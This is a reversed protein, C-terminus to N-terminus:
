LWRVLFSPLIRLPAASSRRLGARPLRSWVTERTIEPPTTLNVIPFSTRERERASRQVSSAPLKIPRRVRCSATSRGSHGTPSRASPTPGQRSPLWFRLRDHHCRVKDCHLKASWKHCSSRLAQQSQTSCLPTVPGLARATVMEEENLWQVLYNQECRVNECGHSYWCCRLSCRDVSRARRRPLLESIWRASPCALGVENCGAGEVRVKRCM